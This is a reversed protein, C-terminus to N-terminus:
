WVARSGTAFSEATLREGTAAWQLDKYDVGKREKWGKDYFSSEIEAMSSTYPYTEATIDLGRARAEIIMQLMKPAFGVADSALHVIHVPVGTLASAAIAEELGVIATKPEKIEGYRVHVFAPAGSHATSRFMELIEWNSAAQTEEIIFGTGLAGQALGRQVERKMAAIESM